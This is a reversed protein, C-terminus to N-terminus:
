PQLPQMAPGPMVSLDIHGVGAMDDAWRAAWCIPISTAIRGLPKCEWDYRGQRTLGCAAHAVAHALTDACSAGDLWPVAILDFDRRESGHVGIVYGCSMAAARIAPLRARFFAQMQEVSKAMFWEGPQYAAVDSYAADEYLAAQAYWKADADTPAALFRRLADRLMANHHRVECLWHSDDPEAGM